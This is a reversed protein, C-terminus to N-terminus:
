IKEKVAGQLILIARCEEVCEEISSTNEAVAVCLDYDGLMVAAVCFRDEEPTADFINRWPTLLCKAGLSSKPEDSTAFLKEKNHGNEILTHRTLAYFEHLSECFMRSCLMTDCKFRNKGM